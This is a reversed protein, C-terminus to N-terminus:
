ESSRCMIRQESKVGDVSEHAHKSSYILNSKPLASYLLPCCSAVSSATLMSVVMVTLGTMTVVSIVNITTTICIIIFTVESNGNYFAFLSCYSIVAITVITM